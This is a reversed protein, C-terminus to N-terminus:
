ENNEKLYLKNRFNAINITSFISIFQEESKTEVGSDSVSNHGSPQVFEFFKNTFSHYAIHVLLDPIFEFHTNNQKMLQHLCDLFLIFLPAFAPDTGTNFDPM